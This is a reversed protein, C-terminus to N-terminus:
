NWQAINSQVEEKLLEVSYEDIMNRELLREAASLRDDDDIAGYFNECLGLIEEREYESFFEEDWLGAPLEIEMEHTEPDIELIECAALRHCGTYANIDMVLVPRGQWGNTKLSEIIKALKQNTEPNADIPHPTDYRM